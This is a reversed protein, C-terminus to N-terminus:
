SSTRQTLGHIIMVFPGGVYQSLQYPLVRRTTAAGDWGLTIKCIVVQVEIIWLILWAEVKKWTQPKRIMVLHALPLPFSGRPSVTTTPTIQCDHPFSGGRIKEPWQLCCYHRRRSLWFDIWGCVVTLRLRREIEIKKTIKTTSDDCFPAKTLYQQYNAPYLNTITTHKPSTNQFPNPYQNPPRFVTHSNTSKWAMNTGITSAHKLIIKEWQSKVMITIKCASTTTLCIHIAWYTPIIMNVLIRSWRWKNLANNLDYSIFDCPSNQHM